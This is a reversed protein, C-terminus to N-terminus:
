GVPEDTTDRGRVTFRAVAAARDEVVLGVHGM